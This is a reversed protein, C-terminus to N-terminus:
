GGWTRELVNMWNEYCLKRLTAEDYGHRRMADVLRPLGTVDGIEAPITAGDFDSGLGVGDVGVHEILHDMHRIMEELPTDENRMGDPRIFSTAFNVGVMGRSERIAGLQKDTLNRSHKCIEWANSHTAVLPADSLRAVDWFGKENLHSLDIMIKLRNCARVLEIGRDTLGPGTDPTSPYRFPVGHGFINPRSWVPGISRLGSEYLVDLMYLDPDIGEAGEIHLIAALKGTDICHRIDAANRCIKVEGNSAREIRILLAAMHATVQQSTPLALQSPLPVDYHSHTMLEDVDIGLSESPVYVAFFGGVFGGQKMRPWDLHGINDGELFAQEPQIKGRMLRLLVDNHGDFVPMLSSHPM